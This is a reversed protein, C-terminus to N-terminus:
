RGLNLLLGGYVRHGYRTEQGFFAPADDKSQVATFRYDGRLGWRGSYWNVGGGVNSTLFTENDNIGISEKQLLSLGGIGGTVYPVVSSRNAASVVLNGSYNVLNPTKLNSTGSPLTLDQSIGVAGSVEGEVAVFRNFHVAVGAGLEYNGFSPGQTNKGETFFTAGAPIVTLVVSGPGPTSEQAYAQSAGLVSAATVVAAILRTM